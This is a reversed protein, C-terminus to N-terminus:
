KKIIECGLNYEIDAIKKYKAMSYGQSRAQRQFAKYLLTRLEEKIENDYIELRIPFSLENTGKKSARKATKASGFIAEWGSRYEKTSVSSFHSISTQSASKNSNSSKESTVDSSKESSTDKVTNNVESSTSDESKQSSETRKKESNNVKKSEKKTKKENSM